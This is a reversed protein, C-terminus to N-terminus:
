KEIECRRIIAITEEYSLNRAEVWEKFGPTKSGLSRKFPPLESSDVDLTNGPQQGDGPKEEDPPLSNLLEIVRAKYPGAMGPEFDLGGRNNIKAILKEGAFIQRGVKKLENEM